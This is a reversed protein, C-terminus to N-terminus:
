LMVFVHVFKETSPPSTAGKWLDGAEHLLPFCFRFAALTGL